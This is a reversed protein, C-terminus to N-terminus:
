VSFILIEWLIPIVSLFEMMLIVPNNLKIRDVISQLERMDRKAM